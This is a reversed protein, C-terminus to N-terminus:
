RETLNHMKARIDDKNWTKFTWEATARIGDAFKVQPTWGLLERALSNDAIRNLPGVPKDLQYDFSPSYSDGYLMEQACRVAMKAADIVRIREMTGLNVGCGNVGDKNVNEVCALTGSVIDSVHTWNRLQQGSGWVGFPDQMIFARALMAIVAHDIKGRPGYVTFYRGTVARCWGAEAYHHLTMESMLKEWGYCNDADQTKFYPPGVLDETLYLTEDVDGQLHNPYECGSGAFFITDVGARVCEHFVLGSLFLNGATQANHLDVYGRGGHDAALHFVVDPRQQKLLTRLTNQNRLDGRRFELAGSKVHQMINSLIGSSLDDVGSLSGVNRAILADALHSSIFSAVGLICVKKRTWDFDAKVAKEEVEAIANM